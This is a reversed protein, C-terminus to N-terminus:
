KRSLVFSYSLLYTHDDFWAMRNIDPSWGDGYLLDQICYIDLNIVRPKGDPFWKTEWKPDSIRKWLYTLVKQKGSQLLQKKLQEWRVGNVDEKSISSRSNEQWQGRLKATIAAFIANKYNLRSITAPFLLIYREDFQFFYWYVKNLSITSKWVNMLFWKLFRRLDRRRQLCVKTVFCNRKM